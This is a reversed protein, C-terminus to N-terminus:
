RTERLADALRDVAHCFANLAPDWPQEDALDIVKWAAAEVASLRDNQEQLELRLREQRADRFIAMVAVGAFFGFVLNFM